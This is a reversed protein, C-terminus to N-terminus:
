PQKIPRQVTRDPVYQGVNRLHAIARIISVTLMESVDTM